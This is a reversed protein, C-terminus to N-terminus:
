GTSAWRKRRAGASRPPSRCSTSGCRRGCVRWTPGTTTSGACGGTGSNPSTPSVWSAPWPAASSSSTTSSGTSSTATPPTGPGSSRRPPAASALLEVYEAGLKAEAALDAKIAPDFALVDSEWLAFAQAGLAAVLEARLPHTLLARKMVVELETWRPEAEDWEERARKRDPDATDQQFRLGVLSSYTDVERRIADWARVAALCVDVSDSGCVSAELEGITVALGDLDPTPATIDSFREAVSSM